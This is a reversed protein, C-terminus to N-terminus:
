PSALVFRGDFDTVAEALPQDGTASACVASTEDPACFLLVNVGAIGASSSATTVRGTVRAARALTVPGLPAPSDVAPVLVPVRLRGYRRDPADFTLEYAGGGVLPLAFSGDADSIASASAGPIQALLARPAATVRIGSLGAGDADIVSGRLVSAAALSLAGPAGDAVLDVTRVTVHGDEGADAGAAPEIIVDYIAVPLRVEPVVGDAGATASLRTTGSMPIADGTPMVLAGATDMPPEDSRAIWTVRAGAAAAGDTANITPSLALTQLGPGYAVDLAQESMLATALTDSSSLTLWPLGSAEPPVVTLAADSDLQALALQAPLSFAGQDDSVAVASPVGGTRLSIRAGGLADGLPDTLAGSVLASAPLAIRELEAVSVGSLLAPADEDGSPVVLVDYRGDELRLSFAGSDPDTFTEVFPAAVVDAPMVRLYAAVPTGDDREVKGSIPLGPDLTVTGVDYDIAPPLVRGLTQVPALQDGRPVFRLRYGVLEGDSPAVNVTESASYCQRGDVDGALIITYPGPEVADFSIEDADSDAITLPEDQFRVQWRFSEFGASGQIDIVGRAVVPGPAIWQQAALEIRMSCDISPSADPSPAGGGDDSSGCASLAALAALCACTLM